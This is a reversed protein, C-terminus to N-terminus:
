LGLRKGKEPVGCGQLRKDLQKELWPILDTELSYVDNESYYVERELTELAMEGQPPFRYFAQIGDEMNRVRRKLYAIINVLHQTEIKWIPLMIGEKTEWRWTRGDIM